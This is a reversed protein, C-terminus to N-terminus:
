AGRGDCGGELTEHWNLFEGFISGIYDECEELTLGEVCTGEPDRTDWCVGGVPPPDPYEPPTTVCSATVYEWFGHERPGDVFAWAGSALNAFRNAIPLEREISEELYVSEGRYIPHSMTVGILHDAKLKVLILRSGPPNGLRVYAWKEGLGAEKWLIWGSGKEATYLQTVSDIARCSDHDEAHVFLRVWTGGSIVARGIAGSVLPNELVAFHGDVFPSPNVGSFVPREHIVSLRQSPTVIPPGLGVIPHDCVLNGGTDNRVLVHGASRDPILGKPNKLGMVRQASEIFLGFQRASPVFPEGQVPKRLPDTM